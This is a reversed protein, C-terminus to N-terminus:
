RLWKGVAFAANVSALSLASIGFEIGLAIVSFMLLRAMKLFKAGVKEVLNMQKSFRTVGKSTTTMQLNLKSMAGTLRNTRNELRKSAADLATLKAATTLLKNDGKVDVDVNLNVIEDAM